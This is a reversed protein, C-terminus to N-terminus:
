RCPSHDPGDVHVVVLVSRTTYSATVGKIKSSVTYIGLEPLNKSM